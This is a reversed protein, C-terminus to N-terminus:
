RSFAFVICPLLKMKQIEELTKQFSANKKKNQGSNPGQSGGSTHKALMKKMSAEKANIAKGKFDIKKEKKEEEALYDSQGKSKKNM